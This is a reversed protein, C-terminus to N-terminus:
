KCPMEQRSLLRFLPKRHKRGSNICWGDSRQRVAQSGTNRLWDTMSGSQLITSSKPVATPMRKWASGQRVFSIADDTIVTAERSYDKREWPVSNGDWYKKVTNRSVHLVGAIQRQSMGDLRMRRINKYIEM